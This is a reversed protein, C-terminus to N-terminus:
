LKALEAIIKAVITAVMYGAIGDTIPVSIAAGAAVLLANNNEVDTKISNSIMVSWGVGGLSDTVAKGMDPVAGSIEESIESSSKGGFLASIIPPEEMAKIFSDADPGLGADVLLQKVNQMNANKQQKGAIWAQANAVIADTNGSYAEWPLEMNYFRRSVSEEESRLIANKADQDMGRAANIAGMNMYQGLGGYDYELAQGALAHNIDAKMRRVPEDWNDNYTGNQSNYFLDTGTVESPKLIDGIMGEWSGIMKQQYAKQESLSKNYFAEQERAARDAAARDAQLRDWNGKDIMEGLKDYGEAWSGSAALAAYGPALRAGLPSYSQPKSRDFPDASEFMGAVRSLNSLTAFLGGQGGFAMGVMSAAGMLTQAFQDVSINAIEVAKYNSEYAESSFRAAESAGYFAQEVDTGSQGMFLLFDQLGLDRSAEPNYYESQEFQGLSFKLYDRQMRPDSVGGFFDKPLGSVFEEGTAGVEVANKFLDNVIKNFEKQVAISQSNQIDGRQGFFTDTDLGGPGMRTAQNQLYAAIESLGESAGSLDGVATLWNNFSSGLRESIVDLSSNARILAEDFNATSKTADDVIGTILTIQNFFERLQQKTQQGLQNPFYSQLADYAEGGLGRASIENLIDILSRFEGSADRVSVGIGELAGGVAPDTYIRELKRLFTEITNGSEGMVVSMSAMLGGIERMTTINRGGLKLDDTLAGWNESMSMLSDATVGSTQVVALLTDNIDGFSVGFQTQIATINEAATSMDVSEGFVMNLGAASAGMGPRNLIDERRAVLSSESLAEGSLYSLYRVQDTFAAVQATTGGLINQADIQVRNFEVQATVWDGAVQTAVSMAAYVGGIALSYAIARSIHAADPIMPAGGSGGESEGALVRAEKTAAIQARSQAAAARAAAAQAQSQAAAIKQVSLANQTNAATQQQTTRIAATQARSAANQSNALAQNARAAAAAANSQAQQERSLNISAGRNVGAMARQLAALETAAKTIGQTEAIFLYRTPYDAM